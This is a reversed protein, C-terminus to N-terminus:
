STREPAGRGALGRRLYSPIAMEDRDAPSLADAMRSFLEDPIRKMATGSAGGLSPRRQKTNEKDISQIM